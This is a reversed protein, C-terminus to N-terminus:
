GELEVRALEGALTELLAVRPTFRLVRAGRSIEDDPHNTEEVFEEGNARAARRLNKALVRAPRRWRRDFKM